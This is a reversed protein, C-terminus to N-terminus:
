LVSCSEWCWHPPSINMFLYKLFIKYFISFGRNITVVGGPGVPLVTRLQTDTDPSTGTLSGPILPPELERLSEYHHGPVSPSRARLHSRFLLLRVTWTIYIGMLRSLRTVTEREWGQLLGTRLSSCSQHPPIRQESNWWTRCGARCTHWGSCSSSELWARRQIKCHTLLLMPVNYHSLNM